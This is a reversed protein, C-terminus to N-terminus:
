ILENAIDNLQSAIDGVIFTIGAFFSMSLSIEDVRSKKELADFTEKLVEAKCQCIDIQRQVQYLNDKQEVAQKKANKSTVINEAM